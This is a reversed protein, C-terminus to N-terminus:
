HPYLSPAPERYRDRRSADGMRYRQFFQGANSDYAWLSAARCNSTPQNPWAQAVVFRVVTHKAIAESRATNM